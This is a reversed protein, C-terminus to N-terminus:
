GNDKDLAMGSSTEDENKNLELSDLDGTVLHEVKDEILKGSRFHAVVCYNVGRYKYGRAKVGREDLPIRGTKRYTEFLNM